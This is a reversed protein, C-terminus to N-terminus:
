WKATSELEIHYQLMEEEQYFFLGNDKNILQWVPNRFSLQIDLRVVGGYAVQKRTTEQNIEVTASIEEYEQIMADIMTDSLYGASEMQSLYKKAITDFLIRQQVSKSAGIFVLLLTILFLFTLMTAVMDIVNGNEKKKKM